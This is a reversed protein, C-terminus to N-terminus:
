SHKSRLMDTTVAKEGFQFGIFCCLKLQAVALCYLVWKSYESDSGTSIDDVARGLM